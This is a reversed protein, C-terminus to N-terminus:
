WPRRGAGNEGVIAVVSGAPMELDVARWCSRRTGPYAFSWTRSASAGTLREPAPTDGSRHVPRTTRWGRSAGAATWGSARLFGIERGRRRHLRVAARRQWCWSCRRRRRAPARPWSSSRASTPSGSSRGPSRTGAASVIAFRVGATRATWAERRARLLREGIGHSASRVRRRTTVTHLPQRALRRSPAGLELAKARGRAALHRDARDAARVRRPARAASGRICPTGPSSWVCFGGARPSCRCTCTTSFSCRTASCPLVDLYEPREHHAITAVSAPAAGRPEGARHSRDRYRRQVRTSLTRLFLHRQPCPSRPSLLRRGCGTGERSGEGLM